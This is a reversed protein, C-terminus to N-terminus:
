EAEEYNSLKEYFHHTCKDALDSDSVLDGDLIEGTAMHECDPCIGVDLSHAVHKALDYMGFSIATFVFNGIASKTDDDWGISNADFEYFFKMAIDKRGNAIYIKLADFAAPMITPGYTRLFPPLDHLGTFVNNRTSISSVHTAEENLMQKWTDVSIKYGLYRDLTHRAMPLNGVRAMEVLASALDHSCRHSMDMAHVFMSLNGSTATSVISMTMAYRDHAMHESHIFDYFAINKYRGMQGCIIRIPYYNNRIHAEHIANKVTPHDGMSAYVISRWMKCVRDMALFKELSLNHLVKEVLYSNLPGQEM